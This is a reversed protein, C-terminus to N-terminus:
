TSAAASWYKFFDLTWGWSRWEWNLEWSAARTAEAEDETMEAARKQKCQPYQCFGQPVERQETRQNNGQDGQLSEKCRWGQGNWQVTRSIREAKTKQSGSSKREQTEGQVASCEKKMGEIEEEAGEEADRVRGHPWVKQKKEEDQLCM